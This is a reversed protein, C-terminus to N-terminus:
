KAVRKLVYLTTNSGAVSKFENPRVGAESGCLTLQDGEFAYIAATTEGLASLDIHRPKKGADIKFTGEAKRGNSLRLVFREGTFTFTAGQLKDKPLDQGRARASEIAWTGQFRKLEAAAEGGAAVPASTMAAGLLAVAALRTKMLAERIATARGIKLM